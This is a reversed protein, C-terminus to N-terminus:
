DNRLIYEIVSKDPVFELRYVPVGNCLSTLSDLLGRTIEIGWNQQICNAMVLSVAAAGEVKALKNECGHSILFIKDLSSERPEDNDYVPTNYMRYKGGDRRLVLRDDHIVKAGADGWISAMTTKGQGSIGSFLYGRSNYNIGSAHIMLDNNVVTLYYLILGDLPYEFPDAKGGKGEIWLEWSNSQLEFKLVASEQESSQPFVTTIYIQGGHKWVSWFEPNRQYRVGEVEEVYPAHFVRTAGAPIKCDVSFVKLTLDPEGSTREIQGGSNPLSPSAKSADFSGDPRM